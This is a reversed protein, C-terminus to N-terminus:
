QEGVAPNLSHCSPHSPSKQVSAPQATNARKKSSAGQLGLLMMAGGDISDGGFWTVTMNSVSLGLSSSADVSLLSVPAGEGGGCVCM